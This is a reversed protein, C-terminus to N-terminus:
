VEAGGDLIVNTQYTRKRCFLELRRLLFVGTDLCRTSKDFLYSAMM